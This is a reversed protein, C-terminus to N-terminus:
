FVSEKPFKFSFFLEMNSKCVWHQLEAKDDNLSYTM